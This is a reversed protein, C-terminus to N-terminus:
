PLKEHRKATAYYERIGDMMVMLKHKKLKKEEKKKNNPETNQKQCIM